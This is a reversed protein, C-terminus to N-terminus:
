SSMVHAYIYLISQFLLRSQVLVAPRPASTLLGSQRPMELKQFSMMSTGVNEARQQKEREELDERVQWNGLLIRM